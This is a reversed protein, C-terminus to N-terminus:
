AHQQKEYLRAYIIYTNYMEFVVSIWGVIGDRWMSQVILREWFKTLMMRLIRWWVVPPHHSLFLATAENDTWVISKALMSTLDTHTYHLLPSQLYGLEGDVIPEEHLVGTYGHFYKKPYLRKVYDPYTGGYKVRHGLFHNFRPVVYYRKDAPDSQTILTIIEKKLEPTIVEDTDLYFIWPQTALNYGLNRWKTFNRNYEDTTQTLVLHPITKQAIKVTNDTSNAAVLIIEKAWKASNLCQTITEQANGAIIILSLPYTIKEM